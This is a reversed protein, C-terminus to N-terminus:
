SSQVKGSVEEATKEDDCAEKLLDSTITFTTPSSLLQNDTIRDLVLHLDHSLENLDENVPSYDEEADLCTVSERELADHATDYLVPSNSRDIDCPRSPSQAVDDSPSTSSRDLDVDNCVHLRRPTMRKADGVEVSSIYVVDDPVDDVCLDDFGPYSANDACDGPEENCRDGSSRERTLIEDTKTENRQIDFDRPSNRRKDNSDVTIDDRTDISKRKSCKTKSIDIREDMKSEVSPDDNTVAETKEPQRKKRSMSRTKKKTRRSKSRTIRANSFVPSSAQSKTIEDELADKSEFTVLPVEEVSVGNDCKAPTPLSQTCESVIPAIEM